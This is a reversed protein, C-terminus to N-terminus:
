GCAEDLARLVEDRLREAWEGADTRIVAAAQSVRAADHLSDRAGDHSTVLVVRPGRGLRMALEAGSQEGLHEDIVAVACRYRRALGPVADFDHVVHVEAAGVGRLASAVTRDDTVAHVPAGLPALHAVLAALATPSDDAVLVSRALAHREVHRDLRTRMEHARGNVHAAAAARGTTVAQLAVIAALVADGGDAAM